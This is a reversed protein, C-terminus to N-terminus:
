LKRRKKDVALNQGISLSRSPGDNVARNKRAIKAPLPMVEIMPLIDMDMVKRKGLVGTTGRKNISNHVASYHQTLADDTTFLERCGLYNVRYYKSDGQISCAYQIHLFHTRKVHFEWDDRDSYERIGKDSM